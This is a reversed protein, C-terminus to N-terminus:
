IDQINDQGEQFNIIYYNVIKGITTTNLYWMKSICPIFIILNFTMIYVIISERENFEHIATCIIVVM